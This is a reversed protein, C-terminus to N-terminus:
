EFQTTGPESNLCWQFKFHRQCWQMDMYKSTSWRQNHIKGHKHSFPFPRRWSQWSSFSLRCVPPCGQPKNASSSVAFLLRLGAFWGDWFPTICWKLATEEWLLTPPLNQTWGQWNTQQNALRKLCNCISTVSIQHVSLKQGLSSNILNQSHDPHPIEMM